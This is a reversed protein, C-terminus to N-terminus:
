CRLARFRSGVGPHLGNTFYRHVAPRLRDLEPSPSTRNENTLLFSEQGRSNSNSNSDFIM